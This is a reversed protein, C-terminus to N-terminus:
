GQDLEQWLLPTIAIIARGRHSIRQKEGAPLQAMTKRMEPLYFIPDYGFGGEGAPELAIMGECVGSETGVVGKPTALAMVCRFRATRKPWPVGNMDELLRKYRQVPTLRLGGYRATHVGPRGDLADVELGSDDALTLLGTQEAYSTAKLIVNEEFTRGTEAVDDVQPIDELGQWKIQVDTLLDALEAVKGKNRTAVLLRV